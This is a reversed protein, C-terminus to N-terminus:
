RLFLKKLLQKIKTLSRNFIGHLNTYDVNYYTVLDGQLKGKFKSISFVNAGLLDVTQYGKQSLSKFISDYLFAHISHNGFTNIEVKNLFATYSVKQADDILVISSAILENNLSCRYFEIMDAAKLANFFDMVSRIKDSSLLKSERLFLMNQAVLEKSFPAKIFEINSDKAKKISSNIDGPYNAIQKLNKIYTYRPAIKFGSWIFPRVDSVAPNLNLSINKFHLKLQALFETVHTSYASDSIKSVWLTSYVFYLPVVISNGKAYAILSIITKDGKKYLIHHAKLNFSNAVADVFEIKENFFLNREKLISAEWNQSELFSLM